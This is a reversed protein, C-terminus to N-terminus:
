EDTEALVQEACKKSEIADRRDMCDAVRQLATAYLEAQARYEGCAMTPAWPDGFDGSGPAVAISITLILSRM